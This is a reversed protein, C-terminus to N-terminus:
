EEMTTVVVVRNGKFFRAYPVPDARSFNRVLASSVDMFRGKFVASAQIPYERSTNWVLDWGEKDCWEQLVSRLTGGSAVVWSRVPEQGAAAGSAGSVDQVDIEDGSDAAAGGANANAYVDRWDQRARGSRSMALVSAGDDELMEQHMLPNQAQNEFMNFGAPAQYPHTLNAGGSWGDAGLNFNNEVTLDAGVKSVVRMNNPDDMVAYNSVGASGDGLWVDADSGPAPWVNSSTAQTPPCDKKPPLLLGYDQQSDAQTQLNFGQQIIQPQAPQVIQWSSVQPQPAVPQIVQPAPQSVQQVDPQPIQFSDPGDSAFVYGCATAFLAFILFKRFM